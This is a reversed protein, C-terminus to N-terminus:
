HNPSNASTKRSDRFLDHSRCCSDSESYFIDFEAHMQLPLTFMLRWLETVYLLGYQGGQLIWDTCCCMSYVWRGSWSAFMKMVSTAPQLSTSTSQMANLPTGLLKDGENVYILILFILFVRWYAASWYLLCPTSNDGLRVFVPFHCVKYFYFEHCLQEMPDCSIACTYSIFHGTLTCM